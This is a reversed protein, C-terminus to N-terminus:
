RGPRKRSGPPRNRLNERWRDHLEKFRVRQDSTLVQRMHLLMMTRMKNLNGRAAEVRDVHRAVQEEDSGTEILRSLTTELRDLEEKTERLQPLTSRFVNDIQASQDATLGLDRQFQESKWWAFPQASAAGAAALVMAAPLLRRCITPMMLMFRKSVTDTLSYPAMM